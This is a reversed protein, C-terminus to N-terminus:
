FDRRAFIFCSMALVVAEFAFSTGLVWLVSRERLIAASRMSVDRESLEVSATQEDVTTQKQANQGGMLSDLEAM